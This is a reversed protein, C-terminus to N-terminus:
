PEELLGKARMGELLPACIVNGAVVKDLQPQHACGSGRDPDPAFFRCKPNERVLRGVEYACCGVGREEQLLLDRERERSAIEGCLEGLRILRQTHVETEGSM